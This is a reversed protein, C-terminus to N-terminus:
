GIGGKGGELVAEMFVDDVRWVVCMQRQRALGANDSCYFLLSGLGRVIERRERRTICSKSNPSPPTPKKGPQKEKGSAETSGPMRIDNDNDHWFDGRQRPSQHFPALASGNKGGAQAGALSPEKLLTSRIAASAARKKCEPPRPNM